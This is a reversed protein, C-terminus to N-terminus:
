LDEMTLPAAITRGSIRSSRFGIVVEDHGRAWAEPRSSGEYRFTRGEALVSWGDLFGPDYDDIELAVDAGAALGALVSDPSTAFVVVDGDTVIAMPLVVIRGQDVFGIRAVSQAALLRRCETEDLPDLYGDFGKVTM